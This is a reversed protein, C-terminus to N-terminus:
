QSEGEPEAPPRRAGGYAGPLATARPASAVQSVPSAQQTGESHHVEQELERVRQRLDRVEVEIRQHKLAREVAAEVEPMKFPKIIYDQAGGRLAEIATALSPYGTMILIASHPSIDSMQGVLDMGEVDPLSLDVLCVQFEKHDLLRLAEKGDEAVSVEFGAESLSGVLLERIFPDDDVILLSEDAL